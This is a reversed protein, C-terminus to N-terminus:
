MKNLDSDFYTENIYPEKVKNFSNIPENNLM